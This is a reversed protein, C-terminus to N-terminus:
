VADQSHVKLSAKAAGIFGSAVTLLTSGADYGVHLRLRNSTSLADSIAYALYSSNKLGPYDRRRINKIFMTPLAYVGASSMNAATEEVYAQWKSISSVADNLAAAVDFIEQPSLPSIDVDRLVSSTRNMITTPYNHRALKDFAQTLSDEVTAFRLPRDVFLRRGGPVPFKLGKEGLLNRPDKWKALLAKAGTMFLEPNRSGIEKTAKSNAEYAEKAAKHFQGTMIKSITAYEKMYATFDNPFQGDRHLYKADITISKVTAKAQKKDKANSMLWSLRKSMIPARAWVYSLSRILTSKVRQFVSDMAENSLAIVRDITATDVIVPAKNAAYTESPVLEIDEIGLPRTVSELALSAAVLADPKLGGRSNAQIIVHKISELAASMENSAATQDIGMETQIALTAEAFTEPDPLLVGNDSLLEDASEASLVDVNMLARLQKNKDHRMKRLPDRAKNVNGIMTDISELSATFYDPSNSELSVISETSLNFTDAHRSLAIDLLERSEESVTPLKQFYEFGEKLDTLSTLTGDLSQETQTIGSIDNSLIAAEVARDQAEILEPTDDDVFDVDTMEGSYDEMSPLLTQDTNEVARIADALYHQKM